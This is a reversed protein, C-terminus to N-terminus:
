ATREAEQSTEEEKLMQLLELVARFNHPIDKELLDESTIRIVTGKEFKFSKPRRETM